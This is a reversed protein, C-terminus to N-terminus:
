SRASRIDSDTVQETSMTTIFEPYGPTGMEPIDLGAIEIQPTVRNPGLYRGILMFIGGGVILNWTVCVVAAICQAFFQGFEHHGCFLGTVPGSVGNYGEGFSGDAFL